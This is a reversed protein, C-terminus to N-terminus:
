SELLFSQFFDWQLVRGLSEAMNSFKINLRLYVVVLQWFSLLVRHCIYISSFPAVLMRLPCEWLDYNETASIQLRIPLRLLRSVNHAPYYRSFPLLKLEINAYFIHIFLHFKLCLSNVGNNGVPPWGLNESYYRPQPVQILLIEAGAKVKRSLHLSM